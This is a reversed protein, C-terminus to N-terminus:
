EPSTTRKGLVQWAKAVLPVAAAFAALMSIPPFGWPWKQPTMWGRWGLVVMHAVVLGLCLYGMRQSRKWRIGGIAKPIMPLTTIAPM